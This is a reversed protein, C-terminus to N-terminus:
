SGVALAKLLVNTAIKSVKDWEVPISKGHSRIKLLGSFSFHSCVVFINMEDDMWVVLFFARKRSRSVHHRRRRREPYTLVSEMSLVIPNPSEKKRYRMKALMTKAYPLQGPRYPRSGVPCSIGGRHRPPEARSSAAVLPVRSRFGVAPTLCWPM